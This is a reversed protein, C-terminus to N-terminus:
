KARGSTTSDRRTARRQAELDCSSQWVVTGTGPHSAAPPSSPVIEEEEMIFLHIFLCLNSTFYFYVSVLLICLYFIFKSKFFTLYTFMFESYIYLCSNTHITLLYVYISFSFIFLYGCTFFILLCVTFIYFSFTFLYLYRISSCVFHIPLCLLFLFSYIFLCM